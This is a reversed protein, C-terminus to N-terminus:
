PLIKSLHSSASIVVVDQDFCQAIFSRLFVSTKIQPKQLLRQPGPVPLCSATVSQRALQSKLM